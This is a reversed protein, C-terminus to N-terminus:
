EADKPHDMRDRRHRLRRDSRGLVAALASVIAIDMM